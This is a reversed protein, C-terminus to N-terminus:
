AYLRGATEALRVVITDLLGRSRENVLGGNEDFATAASGLAIQEPLVMAGLGLGLVQRLTILSRMGGFVGNSAAGIAFVRARFLSGAPKVTGEVRSLWDLTNKLLPTISANYEPGAIFIGQYAKMEEMLRFAAEPQGESKELDGNYLPMPYDALDLLTADLGRAQAALYAARALRTNLSGERISGSFFLLRISKAM